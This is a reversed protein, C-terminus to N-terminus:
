TLTMDMFDVSMSKETFIWTLCNNNVAEKFNTFQADDDATNHHDLPVWCGIGDDIFQNYLAAALQLLFVFVLNAM